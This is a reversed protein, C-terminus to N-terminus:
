IRRQDQYEIVERLEKIENHIVTYDKLSINDLIETLEKIKEKVELIELDTLEEQTIAMNTSEKRNQLNVLKLIKTFYLM